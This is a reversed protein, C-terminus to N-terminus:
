CTLELGSDGQWGEPLWSCLGGCDPHTKDMLGVKGGVCLGQVTITHCGSGKIGLIVLVQGVTESAFSTKSGTLHLLGQSFARLLPAYGCGAAGPAVWM